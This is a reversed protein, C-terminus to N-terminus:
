RGVRRGGQCRCGTPVGIVLGALRADPEVAVTDATITGAILEEAVETLGRSNNRAFIRMRLFAHNMDVGVREAIMGKAQVGSGRQERLLTAGGRVSPACIAREGDRRHPAFPLLM